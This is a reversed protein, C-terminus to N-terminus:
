RAPRGRGAFKDRSNPLRGIESDQGPRRHRGERAVGSGRVRSGDSGPGLSALPWRHSPGPDFSGSRAPPCRDSGRGSQAFPEHRRQDNTSGTWVARRPAGETHRRSQMISCLVRSSECTRGESMACRLRGWGRPALFNPRGIAASFLMSVSLLRCAITERFGCFLRSKEKVVKTTLAVM